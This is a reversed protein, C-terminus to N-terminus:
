AAKATAKTAHSQVANMVNLFVNSRGKGISQSECMARYAKEDATPNDLIWHVLEELAKGGGASKESKPKKPCELDHAKLWARIAGTAQASNTDKVTKVVHDIASQVQDWDKPEFKGKALIEAVQEKRDGPKIMLGLEQLAESFKKSAAKYGIGAQMIDIMILNDDKGAEKGTKVIELVKNTDTMENVEPLKLSGLVVDVKATLTAVTDGSKAKEKSNAELVGILTAKNATGEYIFEGNKSAEVFEGKRMAKMDKNILTKM